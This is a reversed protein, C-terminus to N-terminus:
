LDQIDLVGIPPLYDFGKIFVDLCWVPCGITAPEDEVRTSVQEFDARLAPGVRLDVRPKRHITVVVVSNRRVAFRDDDAVLGM